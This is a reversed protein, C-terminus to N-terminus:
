ATQGRTQRRQLNQLTVGINSKTERNRERRWDNKGATLISRGRSSDAHTSREGEGEISHPQLIVSPSLSLSLSKLLVTLFVPFLPLYLFFDLFCASPSSLTWDGSRQATPASNYLPFPHIKPPLTAPPSLSPFMSAWKQLTLTDVAPSQFFPSHISCSTRLRNLWQSISKFQPATWKNILCGSSNPHLNEQLDCIM